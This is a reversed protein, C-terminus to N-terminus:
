SQTLKCLGASVSFGGLKETATVEFVLFECGHGGAIPSTILPGFDGSQLSASKAERAESSGGRDM